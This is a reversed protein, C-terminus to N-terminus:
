GCGNNRLLQASQPSVYPAGFLGYSGHVHERLSRLRTLAERVTKPQGDGRVECVITKVDGGIQFRVLIDVTQEGVHSDLFEQWEQARHFLERLRNAVQKRTESIRLM